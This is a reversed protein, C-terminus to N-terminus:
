SIVMEFVEKKPIIFDDPYYDKNEYFELLIVILKGKSKNLFLKNDIKADIYEADGFKVINISYILDFEM